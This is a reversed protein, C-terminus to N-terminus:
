KKYESRPKKLKEYKKNRTKVARPESRGPRIGVPDTAILYLMHRYIRKLQKGKVTLILHRFSTVIQITGKFSISRPSTKEVKAAQAMIIRILNYALLHTYIEKRVMSPTKCRLKDMKMVEKIYLLDVEITWRKVFLEKIDQRTMDEPDLFTSTIVKGNIETERITITDPYSKYEKETMWKGKATKPWTVIHDKESLKHGKRFDVKRSSHIQLIVNVGKKLLEAILFYSCYYRDALLIDGKNYLDLLERFLAHEGSEKGAYQGIAAGLVTGVALSIVAVCRAMPYGCGEAQSDPQPYEAQNEPSDPMTFTTGDALKVDQGRWKWRNLNHKNLSDGTAFALEKIMNESLRKRAKCYPGTNFSSLKEGNTAKKACLDAVAKKCSQDPNLTQKIFAELTVIPPYVSEQWHVNEEIIKKFQVQNLIDGFPLDNKQLFEKNISMKNM